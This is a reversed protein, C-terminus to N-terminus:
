KFKVTKPAWGLRRRRSGRIGRSGTRFRHLSLCSSFPFSSALSNCARGLGGSALQNHRM